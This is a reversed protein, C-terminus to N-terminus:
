DFIQNKKQSEFSFLNDTQSFYLKPSFIPDFSWNSKENTMGDIKNWRDVYWIVIKDLRKTLIFHFNLTEFPIENRQLIKEVISGFVLVRNSYAAFSDVALPYPYEYGSVSSLAFFSRTSRSRAPTRERQTYLLLCRQSFSPRSTLFISESQPRWLLRRDHSCDDDDRARLVM